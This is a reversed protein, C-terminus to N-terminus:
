TTEVAPIFSLDLAGKCTAINRWRLALSEMPLRSLLPSRVPQWEFTGMQRIFEKVASRVQDPTFEFEAAVRAAEEQLTM